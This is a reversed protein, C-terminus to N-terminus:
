TTTKIACLFDNNEPVLYDVEMWVDINDQLFRRDFESIFHDMVDIFSVCMSKPDKTTLRLLSETVVFDEVHEPANRIRTYKSTAM